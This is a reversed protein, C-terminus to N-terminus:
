GMLSTASLCLAIWDIQESHFSLIEDKGLWSWTHEFNNSMYLTPLFDGYVWVIHV